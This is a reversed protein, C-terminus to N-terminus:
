HKSEVLVFVIYLFVSRENPWQWWPDGIRLWHWPTVLSSPVNRYWIRWNYSCVCTPAFKIKMISYWGQINIKPWKINVWVCSSMCTSIYCYLRLNSPVLRWFIGLLIIVGQTILPPSWNRPVFALFNFAMRFFRAVAFTARIISAM